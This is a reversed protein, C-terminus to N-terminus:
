SLLDTNIHYLEFLSKEADLFKYLPTFVKLTATTQLADATLTAEGKVVFVFRCAILFSSM